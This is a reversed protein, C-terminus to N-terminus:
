YIAVGTFMSLLSFLFSVSHVNLATIEKSKNIRAFFICFGTLREGLGDTLFLKYKPKTIPHNGHGLRIHEVTNGIYSHYFSSNLNFSKVRLQLFVIQLKCFIM